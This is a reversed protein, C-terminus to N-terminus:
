LLLTLIPLSLSFSFLTPLTCNLYLTIPLRFLLLSLFTQSLTFILFFFFFLTFWYNFFFIMPFNFIFFIILHVSIHSLLHTIIIFAVNWNKFIYIYIYIYLNRYSMICLLLWANISFHVWEQKSSILGMKLEPFVIFSIKTRMRLFM